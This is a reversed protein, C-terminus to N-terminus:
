ETESRRFRPEQYEELTLGKHPSYIAIIKNAQKLMRNYQKWFESM